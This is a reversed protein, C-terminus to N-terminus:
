RSKAADHDGGPPAARAKLFVERKRFIDLQFALGKPLNPLLREIQRNQVGGSFDYYEHIRQELGRPVGQSRLYSGLREVEELMSAYTWHPLDEGEENSEHYM